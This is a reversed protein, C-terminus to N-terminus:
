GSSLFSDGDRGWVRETEELGKWGGGDAVADEAKAGAWGEEGESEKGGACAATVWCGWAM